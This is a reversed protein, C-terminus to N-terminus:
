LERWSLIKVYGIPDGGPMGPPLNKDMDLIQYIGPVNVGMDLFKSVLAGAVNYQKTISIRNEAFIAAAVQNNAGAMDIRDKAILGLTDGTPFVGAPLLNSNITISTEHAGADGTEDWDAGAKKAYLTGGAAGTTYTTTPVKTQPAGMGGVIIEGPIRIIGEVILAADFTSPDADPDPDFALRNGMGDTVDFPTTNGYLTLDSGGTQKALAPLSPTPDWSNADLYGELTGCCGPSPGALSPFPLDMGPPVDYKAHVGNDSHVESDGKTGGFGYNTYVGDMRRKTGAPVADTPKSGVRAGISNMEIIGEKVRLEANLTTPAFDPIKGNLIPNIGFYWNYIGATGGFDAATGAPGLDTGLIHVSGALVVNGNIRAGAGAGGLFAVNGWVSLNRLQVRVDVAKTTAQPGNATARITMKDSDRDGLQVTYTSGDAYTDVNANTYLTVFGANPIPGGLDYCRQQPPSWIWTVTGSCDAPAGAAVPTPSAIYQNTIGDKDHRVEYKLDRRAREVAMEAVYLARTADRDYFAIQSETQSVTLFVLGLISLVIMVLLAVILVSGKNHRMSEVM